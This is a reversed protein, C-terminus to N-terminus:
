DTIEAARVFQEVEMKYYNSSVDLENITISQDRERKRLHKTIDELTFDDTSSLITYKADSFDGNNDLKQGKATITYIRRGIKRMFM